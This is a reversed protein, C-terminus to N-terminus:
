QIESHNFYYIMLRLVTIKYSSDFKIFYAYNDIIM